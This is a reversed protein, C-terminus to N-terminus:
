WNGENYYEDRTIVGDRNRDLRNFSRTSGDWEQPSIIGDDNKDFNSFRSTHYNRTTDTNTNSDPGGGLIDNVVGGVGNAERISIVGDGNLDHRNFSTDSGRWEQRTIVGDNNIDLGRYQDRFERAQALFPLALVLFLFYILKTSM